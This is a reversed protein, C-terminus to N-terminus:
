RRRAMATRAEEPWADATPGPWRFVLRSADKTLVHGEPLAHDPTHAPHLTMQPYGVHRLHQDWSRVCAAMREALAPGAPGYAHVLFEWRSEAPTEGHHLRVLTLYALSGDGVLAAADQGRPAVVLPHTASRDPALRCFGPLTTAAYLQLTEYSYGGPLLVGTAVEHREHRLAEDLGTTDLTPGDHFRLQLRGDALPAKPTTHAATGRDRLFGCYTWDRAHLVDGQRQLAIARTYGHIELPLVLYRGEALQERWAPAVDWVNHTIVSGDFGGPPVHGPAGLSGDGLVATVRGSGAEACLRRTRHIVYPDLDVTIVRGAPATVAAMLEANYGGSGAEFVVAGPELRLREVMDAQLWAASISSVARGAEDRRTVIPLDHDYAAPLPSEPIFRHRPVARLAQQVRTSPAWGGAIVTDAMQNRLRVAEAPEGDVTPPTTAHPYSHVPPLGPLVGPWVAELAQASPAFLAGLNALIHLDHWEWRTFRHPEPLALDGTWDTIRVVASIRRVDGRDDHLITLLHADDLGAKLSTEEALERVCAAQASEGTELRGGPLEWMGRTSRGLLVRGAADTVIACAGLVAQPTPRGKEVTTFEQQPERLVLFALGDADRREAQEWGDTLLSIEDEDLAIDRQEEPTSAVLPTIIMLAGGPRLRASLARVTRTRDRLFAVSLRMTILDYGDEHLEVPDDHEIDLWLWRVGDPDAHKSCARVLAGEAFDAGDVAYGLSALFVALEGSGCYADLARGGEPAPVHEVFLAKEKDGLPRFGRGEAFHESWEARTYGM